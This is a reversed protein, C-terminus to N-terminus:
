ANLNKIEYVNSTDTRVSVEELEEMDDTSSDDITDTESSGYFYLFVLVILIVFALLWPWFPRKKRVKIEAM